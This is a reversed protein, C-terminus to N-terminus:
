EIILKQPAPRSAIMSGAPKQFQGASGGALKPSKLFRAM